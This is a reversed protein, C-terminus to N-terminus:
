VVFAICSNVFCVYQGNYVAFIFRKNRIVVMQLYKDEFRPPRMGFGGRYTM